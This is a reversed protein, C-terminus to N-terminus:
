GCRRDLPRKARDAEYDSRPCQRDDGNPVRDIYTEYFRPPLNLTHLELKQALRKAPTDIEFAYSRALFSKCQELEAETIGRDHWAELLELQLALCAPADDASPATWMSFAERVRGISLVSSAGYSWGREARIAQTMRSSFTGGFAANAVLLACYDDDHPHAGLTGIALQTQTRAKKDVIVLRRGSPRRPEPAPYAIPVGEPLASLLREAVSRATEDTVDGSLHVVANNRTYHADVFANLHDAQISQIGAATGLVRDGHSHGAFLHRRLARGCLLADDDRSHTLAAMSQRALRDLEETDRCPERLIEALLDAAAEVNRSLVEVCFMTSGLGVQEVVEAGLRDLRHEVRRTPDRRAIKAAIRALGAVGAPEDARGARFTIGLTAIPLIDCPEVLIM